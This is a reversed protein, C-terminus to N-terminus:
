SSRRQLVIAHKGVVPSRAIAVGQSDEIALRSFHNTQAQLWMRDTLKDQQEDAITYWIPNLRVVVRDRAIDVNLTQIIDDPYQSTIDSLQSEIADIFLQEPSPALDRDIPAPLNTPQAAIQAPPNTAVSPKVSPVFFGDVVWIGVTVFMVVIATLIADSLQRIPPPLFRRFQQLTDAWIGLARDIPKPTSPNISVNSRPSGTQNPYDDDWFDDIPAVPSLNNGRRAAQINSSKVTAAPLAEDWDDLDLAIQTSRAPVPVSPQATPVKGALPQVWTQTRDGITEVDDWNTEEDDTDFRSAIPFEKEELESQSSPETQRPNPNPVRPELNKNGFRGFLGRILKGTRSRPTM